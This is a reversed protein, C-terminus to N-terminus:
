PLFGLYYCNNKCAEKTITPWSIGTSKHVLAKGGPGYSKAETACWIRIARENLVPKLHMFKERISLIKFTKQTM